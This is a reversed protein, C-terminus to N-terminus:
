FARKSEQGQAERIENRSIDELSRGDTLREFSNSRCDPCVFKRFELKLFEIKFNCSNCKFIEGQKGNYVREINM